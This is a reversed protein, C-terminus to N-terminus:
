IAKKFGRFTMDLDTDSEGTETYGLGRYFGEATSTSKLHVEDLGRDRFYDEVARMLAKSVGTFRAEPLVYNLLVHGQPSGMGFGLVKKDHDQAVFTGGPGDIWTEISEATKRALWPEIRDPDNGHDSTCLEVISRRLLQAIEHADASSARMVTFPM